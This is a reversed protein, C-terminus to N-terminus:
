ATPIKAAQAEFLVGAVREYLATADAAPMERALWHTRLDSYGQIGRSEIMLTEPLLGRELSQVPLGAEHCLAQVIVALPSTSDWTLM